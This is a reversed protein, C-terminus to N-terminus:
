LKSSDPANNPICSNKDDAHFHFKKFFPCIFSQSYNGTGTCNCVYSSGQAKCQGGNKCPVSACQNIVQDCNVGGYGALMSPADTEIIWNLEFSFSSESFPELIFAFSPFSHFM